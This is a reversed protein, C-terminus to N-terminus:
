ITIIGAPQLHFNGSNRALVELTVPGKAVLGPAEM